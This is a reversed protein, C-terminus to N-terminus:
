PITFVDSFPSTQGTATPGTARYLSVPNNADTFTATGAPAGAAFSFASPSLTASKQIGYTAAGPNRITVTSQSGARSVAAITPRTDSTYTVAITIKMGSTLGLGATSLTFAGVAPNSDAASNDTFSAIWRKGQPVDATNPDAEYLDVVLNTYPAGLPPACTGSLSSATTTGGIVPISPLTTLDMFAAYTNFGETNGDGLSPRTGVKSTCNTMSNGRMSIWAANTPWTSDFGVLLENYALNGELADSVGNFDSGFRLTGSNGVSDVILSLNPGFANGHIDANFYNGAVVVNTGPSWNYLNM